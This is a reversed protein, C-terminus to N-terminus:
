RSEEESIEDGGESITEESIDTGSDEGSDSHSSTSDSEDEDEGEFEGELIDSLSDKDLSALGTQGEETTDSVSSRTLPDAHGIGDGRYRMYMDRDVFRPYFNPGM